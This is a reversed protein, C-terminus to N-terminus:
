STSNPNALTQTEKQSETEKHLYILKRQSLKWGDTLFSRRLAWLLQRLIRTSKHSSVLHCSRCSSSSTCIAGDSGLKNRVVPNIFNFFPTGPTAANNSCYQPGGSKKASNGPFRWLIPSQQKEEIKWQLRRSLLKNWKWETIENGCFYLLCKGVKM